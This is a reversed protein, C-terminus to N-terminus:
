RERRLVAKATFFAAIASAALSGIAVFLWVYYTGGRDALSVFMISGLLAIPVSVLSATPMWHRPLFSALLAATFALALVVSVAVPVPSAGIPATRAAWLVVIPALSGITVAVAYIACTRLV